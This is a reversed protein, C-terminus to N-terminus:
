YFVLMMWYVGNPYRSSRAFCAGVSYAQVKQDTIPKAASSPLTQPQMTTYRVVYHGPNLKAAGATRLLDQQGMSCAESHATTNERRQLAPLNADGRIANLSKAVLEEAQQATYVPLSHGFDQVVYLTSGLRVVGIGVVNYSPHLLNERHTASSMLGAHARDPSDASAANEAAEDLYLESSAALRQSLDREGSFQHSLQGRAAMLTAHERAAQTLGPDMRLPALEIRARARNALVLLEREARADVTPQSARYAAVAPAHPTQPSPLGDSVAPDALALVLSSIILLLMATAALDSRARARSARRKAEELTAKATGFPKMVITMPFNENAREPVNKPPPVRRQKAQEVSGLNALKAFGEHDERNLIKRLRSTRSTHLM